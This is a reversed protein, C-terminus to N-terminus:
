NPIDTVSRYDVNPTLVNITGSMVFSDSDMYMKVNHETIQVKNEALDELYYQFHKKLEAYAEDESYNEVVTNYEYYVKNGLYFPLYFSETLMCPQFETYVDCHAFEKLSIGMEIDTNTFGFIKKKKTKGTYIKSEHEVNLKDYYELKASILVDADSVAYVNGVHDGSDNFIKVVGSVLIQGEEVTDGPKVLPTGKRTIIREVVGSKAAVIDRPTENENNQLFSIDNEKIHVILRTGSIEASVWTIEPYENRLSREIRDCDLRNIEIGSYVGISRLYKLLMSNTYKSNGTFSINWVFLGCVYLLVFSIFIGALFSYHKRYQFLLFPLGVRKTIRVRSGTKYCIDKIRLFDKRTISACFGEESRVIDWFIIQRHRCMNLFREPTESKVCVHVYSSKEFRGMEIRGEM